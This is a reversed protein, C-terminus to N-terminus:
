LPKGGRDREGLKMGALHRITPDPDALARKLGRLGAGKDLSALAYVAQRRYNVGGIEQVKRLAAVPVFGLKQLAATARVPELRGQALLADIREVARGDSLAALAELAEAHVSESEDELMTLFADLSGTKAAAMCRVANARVHFNPHRLLETSLELGRIGAAELLDFVKEFVRHVQHDLAAVLITRIENPNLGRIEGLIQQMVDSRGGGLAVESFVPLARVLNMKAMLMAAHAPDGAGDNSRVAAALFDFLGEPKVRLIAEIVPRSSAYTAAGKLLAAFAEPTGLKALADAAPGFQKTSDAALEAALRQIEESPSSPAKMKGRFWDVLNM